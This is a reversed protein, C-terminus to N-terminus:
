SIFKPEGTSPTIKPTTNPFKSKDQHSMTRCFLSTFTQPPCGKVPIPLPKTHDDNAFSPSHEPRLPPALSPPTAQSSPTLTKWICDEDGVVAEAADGVLPGRDLPTEWQERKVEAKQKPKPTLPDDPEFMDLDDLLDIDIASCAAAMVIAQSCLICFCM